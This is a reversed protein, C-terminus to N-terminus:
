MIGRGDRDDTVGIQGTRFLVVHSQRQTTGVRNARGQDGTANGGVLDRDGAAAHRLRCHRRWATDALPAITAGLDGQLRLRLSSVSVLTEFWPRRRGFTPAARKKGPGASSLRGVPRLIVCMYRSVVCSMVM